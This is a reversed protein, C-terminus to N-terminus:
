TLRIGQGVSGTEFVEVLGTGLCEELVWQFKLGHFHKWKKTRAPLVVGELGKRRKPDGAATIFGDWRERLM